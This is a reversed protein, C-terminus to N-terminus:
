SLTNWVRSCTSPPTSTSRTRNTTSTSPISAPQLRIIPSLRWTFSARPRITSFSGASYRAIAHIPNRDRTWSTRPTQPVTSTLDAACHVGVYAGGNRVFSVLGDIQETTLESDTMYDILVDYDDLSELADRDTTIEVDAADGVADVLEDGKEDIAHFPFTREGILLANTAM